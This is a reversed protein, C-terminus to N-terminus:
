VGAAPPLYLHELERPHRLFLRLDPLQLAEMVRRLAASPEQLSGGGEGEGGEEGEKGEEDKHEGEQLGEAGDKQEQQQQQQQQQQRWQVVEAILPEPLVGLAIAMGRLAQRTLEWRAEEEEEAEQEKRTQTAGVTVWAPSVCEPVAWRLRTVGGGGGGGGGGSSSGDANYSPESVPNRDQLAAFWHRWSLQPQSTRRGAPATLSDDRPPRPPPSPLARGAAGDGSSGGIARATAVASAAPVVAAVAPKVTVDQKEDDRTQMDVTRWNGSNDVGVNDCINNEVKTTSTIPATQFCWAMMLTIRRPPPPVAAAAATGLQSRTVVAPRSPPPPPPHQRQRTPDPFPPLPSRSAADDRQPLPPPPALPCQVRPPSSSPRLPPLKPKPPFPQPVVGHLLNGPFLLLRNQRPGIAWARLAVPSPSPSTSPAPHDAAAIPDSRVHGQAEQGDNGEGRSGFGFGFGPGSGPLARGSYSFPKPPPPPSSSPLPLDSVSKLSRATAAEEGRLAAAVAVEAVNAAEAVNAGAAAAAATVAVPLPLPATPLFLVSSIMPHVLHYADLGRRLVDENVDFHLQHAAAPDRHHAWWEVVAVAPPRRGTASPVATPAVALATFGAAREAASGTTRFELVSDTESHPRPPPTPAGFPAPFSASEPQQQLQQQGESKATQLLPLLLRRHLEQIAEEVVSTPPQDLRYLYSFFPTKRRGYRHQRWYPTAGAPDFAMALRRMLATPLVDDCVLPTVLLMEVPQPELQAQLKRLEPVALGGHPEGGREERGRDGDRAAPPPAGGPPPAPAAARDTNANHLQLGVSSACAVWVEESLRLRFGLGAVWPDAKAGRGAACLAVAQTGYGYGDCQLPAFSISSNREHLLSWVLFANKTKYSTQAKTASLGVEEGSKRPSSYVSADCVYDDIVIVPWTLIQISFAM